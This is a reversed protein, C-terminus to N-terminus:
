DCGDSQEVLKLVAELKATPMTFKDDNLIQRLKSILRERKLWDLMEETVQVLEPDSYSAKGPKQGTKRRWTQKGTVLLTKTTRTITTIRFFIGSFGKSRVAVKDGEKLSDLWARRTEEDAALKDRMLM